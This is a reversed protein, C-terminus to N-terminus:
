STCYKFVSIENALLESGSRSTLPLQEAQPCFAVMTLQVSTEEAM